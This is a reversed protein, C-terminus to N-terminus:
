VRGEKVSYVPLVFSSRFHLFHIRKVPVSPFLFSRLSPLIYNLRLQSFTAIGHALVADGLVVSNTVFPGEDNRLSHPSIRVGRLQESDGIVASRLNNNSEEQLRIQTKHQPLQM